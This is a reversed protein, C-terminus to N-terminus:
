KRKKLVFSRASEDDFDKPEDPDGPARAAITLTDRELDYIGNSTKGIFQQIPCERISGFIMSRGDQKSVEITGKYWEGQRWGHFSIKDGDIVLSVEGEKEHGTEKGVWTGQLKKLEGEAYAVSAFSFVGCLIATALKLVNTM